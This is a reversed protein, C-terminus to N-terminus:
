VDSNATPPTRCNINVARSPVVIVTLGTASFAAIAVSNMMPEANNAQPDTGAYTFSRSATPKSHQEMISLISTSRLLSPWM